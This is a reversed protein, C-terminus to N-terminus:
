LKYEVYPECLYDLFMSILLGLVKEVFTGSYGFCILSYIFAMVGAIVWALSLFLFFLLVFLSGGNGKKKKDKDDKTQVNDTM